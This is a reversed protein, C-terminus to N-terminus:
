LAAAQKYVALTQVATREWTYSAARAFGAQILRNALEPQLLLDQMGRALGDIDDPDAKLAAGGAIEKLAAATSCLVPTGCAMAEMVPLGFGECRSPLALLDAERYHRLLEDDTLYGTWTVHGAVALERALAPAEPYREDCPGAIVLRLPFPLGARARAFARLLGDLNKYPDARGVYLCTRETTGDAPDKRRAPGEPAPTFRPSVGNPVAFVRDARAATVPLARLCDARSAESVTIICDARRAVEDMLARYLFFFRSKMSRPAHNPFLLPIVDHLTVVARTRGSRRRPFAAFPIMYNPSHYVHIGDRKLLGPLAAQSKLSFVGWPVVRLDMNGAGGLGAERATRDLVDARDFLVTYRNEADLRALARLLERTYAGIGSIRPFIWRADIAINM